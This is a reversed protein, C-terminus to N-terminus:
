RFIRRCPGRGRKQQCLQYRSFVCNPPSNIRIKDEQHINGSNCHRTKKKFLWSRTLINRSTVAFSHRNVNKVLVHDLLTNKKYCNSCRQGTQGAVSATKKIRDTITELESKETTEMVEETKTKLEDEKSRIYGEVHSLMDLKHSKSVGSSSSSATESATEHVQNRLSKLPKSMSVSKSPNGAFTASIDRRPHVSM